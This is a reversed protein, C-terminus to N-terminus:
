RPPPLEHVCFGRQAQGPTPSMVMAWAAGRDGRKGCTDAAGTTSDGTPAERIAGGGAALDGRPGHGGPAANRHQRGVGADGTLGAGGAEATGAASRDTKRLGAQMGGARFPTHISFFTHKSGSDGM